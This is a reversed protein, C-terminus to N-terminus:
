AADGWREVLEKDAALTECWRDPWMTGLVRAATILVRMKQKFSSARHVRLYMRSWNQIEESLVSPVKGVLEFAVPPWLWHEDTIVADWIERQAFYAKRRECTRYVNVTTGRPFMVATFCQIVSPAVCIRPTIPENESRHVPPRREFSYREGHYDATCHYWYRKRRRRM